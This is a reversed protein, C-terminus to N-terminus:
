GGNSYTPQVPPAYNNQPSYSSKVQGGNPYPAGPRTFTTPYNPPPRAGGFKAPGTNTGTPLPHNSPYDGPPHYNPRSTGSSSHYMSDQVYTEPYSRHPQPRSPAQQPYASQAPASPRPHSQGYGGQMPRPQPRGGM